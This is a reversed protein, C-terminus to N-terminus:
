HRTPGPWGVHWATPRPVPLARTPGVRDWKLEHRAPGQIPGFYRTEFRGVPRPGLPWSYRLHEREGDGEGRLLEQMHLAPHRCQGPDAEGRVDGYQREQDADEAPPQAPGSRRVVDCRPADRTACSSYTVRRQLPWPQSPRDHSATWRRPSQAKALSKSADATM